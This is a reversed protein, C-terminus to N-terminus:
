FYLSFVWHNLNDAVYVREMRCLPLVSLRDPIVSDPDKDIVVVNYRKKSMYPRDDAHRVDVGDLSYVVCPYVMKVSEPPQFYVFGSGLMAKLEEHLEVRSDM